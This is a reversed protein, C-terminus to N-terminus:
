IALKKEQRLPLSIAESRRDNMFIHLCMKMESGVGFGRSNQKVFGSPESESGLALFISVLHDANKKASLSPNSGETRTFARRNELGNGEVM